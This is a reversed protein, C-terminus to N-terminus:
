TQLRKSYSTTSNERSLPAFDREEITGTSGAKFINDMWQFLLLSIFGDKGTDEGTTIKQYGDKTM